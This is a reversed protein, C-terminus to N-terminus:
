PPMATRWHSGKACAVDQPPVTRGCVDIQGEDLQQRLAAGDMEKTLCDAWQVATPVWKMPLGFLKTCELSPAAEARVMEKMAAVEIALRKETPLKVCGDRHVTDFVSKCDTVGVIPCLQRDFDLLDIARGFRAELLLARVFQSAGLGECASLTEGAFTSSVVRKISHSRWDLLTCDSPKGSLVQSKRAAYIPYGAQTHTKLTGDASQPDEVNAWAADHYTVLCLDNMPVPRIILEFDATSKALRILRNTTALNDM